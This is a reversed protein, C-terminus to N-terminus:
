RLILLVIDLLGTIVFQVGMCSLLFGLIRSIADLGSNGILKFIKKASLLSILFIFSILATITFIVCHIILTSPFKSSSNIILAITGPGITGPLALPVFSIDQKNNKEKISSNNLNFLMKFGIYFLIIGGTIRLGNLSIGFANIIENGAYFCILMLIAVYFTAFYIQKNREYTNLKKGLILLLTTSTLPNAVPLLTIFGIIVYHLYELLM